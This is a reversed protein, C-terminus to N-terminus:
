AVVSGDFGATFVGEDPILYEAGGHVIQAQPAVVPLDVAVDGVARSRAQELLHQGRLLVRFDIPLAELIVVGGHHRGKQRLDGGVVRLDGVDAVAGDDPGLTPVFRVPPVGGSGREDVHAAPRHVMGMLAESLHAQEIVHDEVAVVHDVRGHVELAAAQGELKLLLDRGFHPAVRAGDIRVLVVGGHILIFRVEGPPEDDGVHQM